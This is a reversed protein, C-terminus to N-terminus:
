TINLEILEIRLFGGTVPLTGATSGNNQSRIGITENVATTEIIYSSSVSAVNASNADRTYAGASTGAIFTGSNRNLDVVITKRPVGGAGENTGTVLWTVRYLGPIPITINNANVVFGASGYSLASAGNLPLEAVTTDLNTGTTLDAQTFSRIEVDNQFYTGNTCNISDSQRGFGFDIDVAYEPTDTGLGMNGVNNMFMHIITGNDDEIRLPSSTGDDSCKIFLGSGQGNCRITQAWPSGTGPDFSTDGIKLGSAGIVGSDTIFVNSDEIFEGSTGSFIAIYNDRVPSPAKVGIEGSIANIANFVDGSLTILSSELLDVDDAIASITVTIAQDILDLENEFYGSTGLIAFATESFADQLNPSTINLDSFENGTVTLPIDIAELSDEQFSDSPNVRHIVISNTPFFTSM